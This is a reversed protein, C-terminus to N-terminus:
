VLLMELFQNRPVFVEKKRLANPYYREVNPPTLECLSDSHGTGM